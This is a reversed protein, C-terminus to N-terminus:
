ISAGHEPVSKQSPGSAKIIGMQLAMVRHVEDLMDRIGYPKPVMGLFGYDRFNAMVPDNSYGSSVITRANPNIDLLKTIMERGGMGGRITLDMIVVEYPENSDWAKKYLALAEEGNYACDVMYGHMRLLESGVELITEEDDMLLVKGYGIEREEEPTPVTDVKENSAPLYIIFTTGVGVESDVDIFGDHKSVISHVITLGLGNGDSKTTFFPDFIKIRVDHPIGTGNDKISIKVYHGPPLPINSDGDLEVDRADIQIIGGKPMAQKANIILNSLVQFMQGEDADICSLNKDTTISLTIDSGRLGFQATEQLLNTVLVTKRIPEGGKSFTLLQKTLETAKRVSHEADELRHYRPDSRDMNKRMITLTGMISTLYNNFDHAIGGAFVGLSEIKDIKNLRELLRTRDTVDRGVWQIEVLKCDESFIGRITWQYWRSETASSKFEHESEFVPAEKSLEQIRKQILAKENISIPLFEGFASPCSRSTNNGAVLDQSSGQDTSSHFRLFATNAFTVTGDPTSRFVLETQDEVVAKYRRESQLLDRKSSELGDVMRNISAALGGLDDNSNVEIKEGSGGNNDIRRVGDKIKDIRSTIFFQLLIVVVIFLFISLLLLSLLLMTESNVAQQYLTRPGDVQVILAPKNYLDNIVTLGTIKNDDIVKVTTVQSAIGTGYETVNGFGTVYNGFDIITVQLSQSHLQGTFQGEMTKDIKKALIFVGAPNGNGDGTISHHIARASVIYPTSGVMIIGTCGNGMGRDLLDSQTKNLHDFFGTPLARIGGDYYLRTIVDNTSNTIIVANIGLNIFTSEPFITKMYDPNMGMAFNYTEDWNAYSKSNSDLTQLENDLLHSAQQTNIEANTNELANFNDVLLVSAVSFFALVLCALSGLTILLIKTGVKM